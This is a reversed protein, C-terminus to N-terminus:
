ELLFFHMSKELQACSSKIKSTHTIMRTDFLKGPAETHRLMFDPYRDNVSRFEVCILGSLPSKIIDRLIGVKIERLLRNKLELHTTSPTWILGIWVCM